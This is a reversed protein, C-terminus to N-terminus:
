SQQIVAKRVMEPRTNLMLLYCAVYVDVWEPDDDSRDWKIWSYFEQGKQGIHAFKEGPSCIQRFVTNDAGAPIFLVEDDGLAVTTDDDTGEYEVWLVGAFDVPKGMGSRLEKAEEQGEFAKRYEPAEQLKDIAGPGCLAIIQSYRAGKANKKMYRVVQDHVTSRLKGNILTSVDLTITSPEDVGMETFYNYLEAGETDILIGRLASLRQYERTADIDGMLGGVGNLGSQREAIEAALQKPQDATGVDRLFQLDGAVIRDKVALRDTSFYKFKAKNRKDTSDIPEGRKSTPVLRITAGKVDFALVASRIPSLTFIGLRGLHNPVNDIKNIGETMSIQTFPDQNVIDLILSEPM